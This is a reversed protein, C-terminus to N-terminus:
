TIVIEICVDNYTKELADYYGGTRLANLNCDPYYYNIVNFQPTVHFTHDFIENGNSEAVKLHWNVGKCYESYDEQIYTWTIMYNERNPPVTEDFSAAEIEIGNSDFIKVTVTKSEATPNNIYIYLMDQDLLTNIFKENCEASLSTQLSTDVDPLTGCNMDLLILPVLFLFYRKVLNVM